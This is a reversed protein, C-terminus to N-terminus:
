MRSLACRLRLLIWRLMQMSQVKAPLHLPIRKQASKLPILFFPNFPCQEVLQAVRGSNGLM